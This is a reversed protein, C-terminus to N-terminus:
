IGTKMGNLEIILAQSQITARNFPKMSPEIEEGM